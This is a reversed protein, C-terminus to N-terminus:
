KSPANLGWLVGFPDRLQGYRDGWFMLEVPMVVEAGAAVARDWWFDIDDIVLQIAFGEHGKFPHGYAPYADSLMLSNGNIYLHVHMTRGSEDPPVIYAQEAGFAEKYFEAAKVAGDVTLYPLLGNKVPPMKTQNSKTADM